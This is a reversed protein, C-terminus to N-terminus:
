RGPNSYLEGQNLLLKVNRDMPTDVPKCDLMRTEELIDLVYKRQSIVIGEQSQAVEIGIFYRLRGVRQLQLMDVDMLLVM